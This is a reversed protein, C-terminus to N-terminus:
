TLLSKREALREISLEVFKKYMEPNSLSEMITGLRNAFKISEKFHTPLNLMNKYLGQDHTQKLCDM